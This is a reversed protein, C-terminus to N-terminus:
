LKYRHQYVLVTRTGNGITNIKNVIVPVNDDLQEIIANVNLEDIDSYNNDNDSESNGPFEMLDDSNGTSYGNRVVTVITHPQHTEPPKKNESGPDISTFPKDHLPLSIMRSKKYTRHQSKGTGTGKSTGVIEM